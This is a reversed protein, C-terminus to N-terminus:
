LVPDASGYVQVEYIRATTEVDQTGQTVTLKVYRANVPAFADSTNDASNKKVDKVPTYETGDSSVSITYKKTNMGADEGGAHAHAIDVQSVTTERGLDITLEYPAEGTACWKTHVDGDVAKDPAENGNVFATADTAAGQSLLTLGDIASTVVIAGKFTQEDTGSENKATVTVDYVGEKDYTAEVTDGEATETDSGPLSWSVSETNQSSDSTFTVTDGPRILTASAAMGAKPKSNDPWDMTATAAKGQEADANVPVVKFETKNTDDHRRMANVFFNTTNSVGLFALSKDQNVRYIEYMAPDGDAKWSLRAGTYMQDDDFSTGDVKVDSVSGADAAKGDRMTVNGLHMAYGSGDEYASLGIGLKSLTKGAHDKVKFSVEGWDEGAKKDGEVTATTGDDFTLEASVTTEATAKVRATLTTSDTLPVDMAYLDITTEVGKAAKGALKISDGGYWAETYDYSATLSNGDGNRVVWQYTPLIDAVSRNNWDMQSIQAGERFFNYGSGTNFNTVLPLATVASNEKVYTSVGSWDEDSDAKSAATPDHDANVWLSAENEHFEDLSGADTYAWNPCYLGLSTRTVGDADSFLDWRIPTYIGNAQVDVGAYLSYPDVGLEEAKAASAALLDRDALEDETWWFNLFMEDAVPDGEDDVMFMANEDTLANQWDIGGDRTMSDYYVIRMGPAQAKYYSIFAQMAKADDADLPVEADEGETEQNIFWGDFGYTEAAEILKDAMPFSGDADQELFERVWEVKGGSADQPFFVTGLVPVGNRHGEDTVDPSPPVIIGEGASGGWYVLEDVYQWYTFTNADASNLGHPANGSTSSNMISIAMVKTDDNQTDNSAVIRDDAVREALPVTSVNYALDADSEPTWALLDEPFWYPSEPQNSMVLKDINEDDVTVEYATDGGGCAALGLLMATAAGAAACRMTARSSM